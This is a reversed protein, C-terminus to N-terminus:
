ELASCNRNISIVEEQSRRDLKNSRMIDVSVLSDPLWLCANAGELGNNALM